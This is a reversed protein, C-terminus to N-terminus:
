VIGYVGLSTMALVWLLGINPDWVQLAVSEGRFTFSGGFPIVAFTTFAVTASVFPALLYVPRDVNAPTIDEKFFMKAGDAIVQLVGGPGLRNPGVRSQMKAVVRREGWILLATSLLWLVFAAVAKVVIVLVDIGDM